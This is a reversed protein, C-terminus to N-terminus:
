VVDGHGCAVQDVELVDGLLGEEDGDVGAAVVAPGGLVGEGLERVEGRGRTGLHDAGLPLVAAVDVRVPVDALALGLLEGRGLALGAEVDEDGVVLQRRGLLARELLQELDLHDVAAPQDEVDERQVGLRVFAAELDLEGLEFVLQRPQGLQPGVQRAGAAPDARASRALALELGVPPDDPGPDGLHLFADLLDPWCRSVAARPRSRRSHGVTPM